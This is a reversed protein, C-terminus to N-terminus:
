FNSECSFLRKIKWIELWDNKLKLPDISYQKSTFSVWHFDDKSIAGQRCPAVTPVLQPPPLLYGGGISNHPLAQDLFHLDRQM